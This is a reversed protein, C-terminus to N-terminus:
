QSNRSVLQVPGERYRSLHLEMVGFQTDLTMRVPVIRGNRIPAGAWVIIEQDANPPRDYNRNAPFGGKRIFDIKCGIAQGDFVSYRSPKINRMPTETLLVDYRRHGDFIPLQANCGKGKELRNTMTLIATMPDITNTLSDPSIPTYKDPSDIRTATKHVKVEGTNVYDMSVTRVNKNWASKHQHQRPFFKDLSILGQTESTAFWTFMWNFAENTRAAGEIIYSSQGQRVETEISGLYLGGIYVSYYLDTEDEAAVVSRSFLAAFLFFGAGVIRISNVSSKKFASM